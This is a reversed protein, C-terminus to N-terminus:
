EAPTPIGRGLAIEVQRCDEVIRVVQWQHRDFALDKVQNESGDFLVIRLPEPQRRTVRLTAGLPRWPVSMTTRRHSPRGGTLFM